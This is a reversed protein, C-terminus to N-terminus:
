FRFGSGGSIVGAGTSSNGGTYSRSAGGLLAGAANLYGTTRASSASARYNAAQNTFSLAQLQGEYRTTLAELEANAASNGQLTLISGTSPDFGSQAVIARQDGLRQANERRQMEERAGAQQYATRANIDANKAAASYQAAEANGSFISGVAQMAMAAFPLFQM